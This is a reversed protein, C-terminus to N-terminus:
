EWLLGQVYELGRSLFTKSCPNLNTLIKSLMEPTPRPRSICLRPSLGQSSERFTILTVNSSWTNWYSLASVRLKRYTEGQRVMHQQDYLLVKARALSLGNRDVLHVTCGAPQIYDAQIDSSLWTESFLTHQLIM